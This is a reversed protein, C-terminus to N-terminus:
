SQDYAAPYRQRLQKIGYHLRVSVNNKSIGLVQAIEKPSLDDFYHLQLAQRYKPNIDELIARVADAAIPDRGLATDREGPDFGNEALAELSAEKKKRSRDIILHNAVTYLFARLSAIAGRGNSAYLWAKTFTEQMLDRAVQRDRVRFYCHRFIADAYQDYAESFQLKLAPKTIKKTSTPM